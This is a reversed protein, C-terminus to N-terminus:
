HSQSNLRTSKRDIVIKLHKTDAKFAIMQRVRKALSEGAERDQDSSAMRGGSAFVVPDPREATAIPIFTELAEFILNDSTEQYEQEDEGDKRNPTGLWFNEARQQKKKIVKEYKEWSAMWTRKLGLLDEDSMDLSLEEETLVIGQQTERPKSKIVNTSRFLM